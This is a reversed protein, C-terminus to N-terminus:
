FIIACYQTLISILHIKLRIQIPFLQIYIIIWWGLTAISAIAEVLNRYSCRNPVSKIKIIPSVIELLLTSFIENSAVPLSM